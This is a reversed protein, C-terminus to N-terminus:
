GFLKSPTSKPFLLSGGDGDDDDSQVPEPQSEGRQVNTMEQLKQTFRRPDPAGIPTRLSQHRKIQTTLIQFGIWVQRGASFSDVHFPQRVHKVTFPAAISVWQTTSAV